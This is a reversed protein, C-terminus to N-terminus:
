DAVATSELLEALFRELAIRHLELVEDLTLYRM